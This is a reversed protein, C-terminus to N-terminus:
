SIKSYFSKIEEIVLLVENESLFPNLPLSLVSATLKEANVFKAKSLYPEMKPITSPYHTSTQIGKEWLFQKLESRFATQIVFLHANHDSDLISWPLILDGIGSLHQIYLSALNKRKEQWKQFYTLKVNLFGAQISDIRANRGVMEHKDRFPQGHNILMKIKKALNGDSTSLAGAEGLAGLNKTPYFSFCGIDAWCGASKGKQSAGFAQANDEIIKIGKPKAWKNLKEMDVMKGYLHVSIVAKTKPTKLSDLLELDMLGSNDTDVFVPSAGVLKVVEATSVWTLAPVIVEDGKGIELARLAIELADTGNSCAIVANDTALFKSLNQCLLDVEEGASFIGKALMESFKQELATKLKQDISSLDLFPIPKKM